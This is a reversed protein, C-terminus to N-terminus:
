CRSVASSPRGTAPSATCGRWGRWGTPRTCNSVRITSCRLSTRVEFGARHDSFADPRSEYGFDVQVLFSPAARDGYDAYSVRALLPSDWAHGPERGADRQYEYRILNGLLDQSQTVRWGFVRSPDDPDAVVAPDRWNVDAGEPRLTGYRTLLGDRGRVEWVDSGGVVVREIRNFGGETRPRYRVRTSRGDTGGGAVPVLDEAGSLLFVDPSGGADQYRPVGRSTKRTM